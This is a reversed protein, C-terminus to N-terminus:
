RPHGAEKLEQKLEALYSFDTGRELIQKPTSKIFGAEKLRLAYFRITDAPDYERWVDYPIEKLNEVSYQYNDTFGGDVMVRAAREPDKATADAGRYLARLARKTAVPHKEMWNRNVNATCCYYDSWPRDSMSDVVVRGIGKARLGQSGPPFAVLGDVQGSSFLQLGEAPPHNVLKVDKRVDLGVNALTVAAFLGDPGTPGSISITKGKFDRISKIDKTGFLQWCGVHVGGLMVIPAGADIPVTMLAGFGMSFDLDGAALGSAIATPSAKIYQIDTFGEERLFPEAMVQAAICSVPFINDLRITTTEPPPQVGPKTGAARTEVKDGGGSSCGALLTGAAAALGLGAAGRLLTRRSLQDDRNQQRM